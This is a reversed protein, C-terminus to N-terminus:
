ANVLNGEDLRSIGTVPYKQLSAMGQAVVFVDADVASAKVNKFTRKRYVPQNGSNVGSQIAIVISSGQPVKNVAM